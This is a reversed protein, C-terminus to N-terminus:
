HRSFINKFFSIFRKDKNKVTDIVVGTTTSAGLVHGNNKNNTVTNKITALEHITQKKTLVPISVSPASNIHSYTDQMIEKHYTYRTVEEQNPFLIRVVQSEFITTSAFGMALGSIHTTTNGALLTNKPFSYRTDGISLQWQSFDLDYANPNLIDIFTGYKGSQVATIEIDPAVVYVVMRGTGILYSNGGQVQAIYKGPYAYRYQTSSGVGSGGDGFAWTYNVKDIPSGARTMSGVTFLSEAGAVAIKQTPIYLIIDANPPSMQAITSQTDTTTSTNNQDSQSVGNQDSTIVQNDAGPTPSGAVFNGAVLSLTSGEKAATYSPLTDVSTANIRVEISTVGTNVLSIGSKLLIGNYSPYDQLFKTAGTVTSGIIAYTNPLLSTGGSVPSITIPNGGKISITLGSLDTTTQTNNYIEIWERGSDDGIPNSMVESIQLAQTQSISAIYFFLTLLKKM